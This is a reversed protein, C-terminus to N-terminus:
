LISRELLRVLSDEDLGTLQAAEAATCCPVTGEVAQLTFASPAGAAALAAAFAEGIGGARMAEEAFVISRYRTAAAVCGDPWPWIRNLKLVAVPKGAATMRRAARSAPGFLGGYTVLVCAADEPSLLTFDAGDAPLAAAEETEAGKAYRIAVLGDEKCVDRRLMARLEAFSAPADIRLGPVTRLLAVDYLGQHTEGDGPILGARDIALVVHNGMLATDNLVQDFARQLFTSYLAVVPCMGRCALASAFTVAHQEAIGVDFFRDPLAAAFPELGTGAAMAATVACVRGDAQAVSLLAQGFVSSFTMKEAGTRGTDPDFPSVGHYTDPHQQAYTLGKGKVTVVHLLVPRDVAKAARIARTLARLDHGDVPGLYYLGMEEFLPSERYLANKMGTKLRFLKRYLWRGILPIHSVVLAFREKVRIYRARNRLRSLYRATFGVNQSISMRNDNLVVILRGSERGVNSLGEYAQGGTLAGDGIVAVTYSHDGQLRKAAAMGCAASVSTSSHGAIFSDYESERPNPFGSLGDKQRLTAFRSYRGTLLKHTYCQHGVDFVLTDEPAQLERHLAVTLEVVGLNSSLHGGTESVTRILATRIQGCLQEMQPLTMGRLDAPSQIRALWDTERGDVTM